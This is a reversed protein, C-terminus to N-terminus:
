VSNATSIRELTKVIVETGIELAEEDFDFESTHHGSAHNAGIGIYTGSGGNKQAQTILHSVDESASMQEYNVVTKVKNISEAAGAVTKVLENNAVFSTTQGYLSTDYEVDHMGAAHEIIRYMEDSMYENISDNEGRVEVRMETQESIINQSNPAHVQGVNVRTTGKGHRPIGYLNQIATTAARLANQGNDPRKGAHAPVGEFKVDHKSSPTPRDLGAVVKGTENGLGLHLGFIYDIDDLHSTNSMALGGRGGEEAPQFFLKITGEFDSIRDLQRAVGVGITAHGDHGCAHMKDAHRSNFDKKSPKHAETYAEVIELADMDIRIGIVPEEEGAFVKEGVLGTVMGMRDLYEEPAGEKRARDRAHRIEKESPVGLRTDLDVADKGLFITYNREELEEAILATTRFEQWGIEPYKHLDRRLETLSFDRIYGM